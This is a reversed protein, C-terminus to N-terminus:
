VLFLEVDAGPTEIQTQSETRAVFGEAFDLSWEDNQRVVSRLDGDTRHGQAVIKNFDRVQVGRIIGFDQLVVLRQYYSSHLKKRRGGIVELFGVIRGRVDFDVIRKEGAIFRGLDPQFIADDVFLTSLVFNVDAHHVRFILDFRPIRGHRNADPKWQI